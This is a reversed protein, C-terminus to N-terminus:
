RAVVVAASRVMAGAGVVVRYVGVPLSAVSWTIRHAGPEVDRDAITAVLTGRTDYASARLHAATRLTVDISAVERAPNPTVAISESAADASVEVAAVEGTSYVGDNTGIVPTGDPLVAVSTVTASPPLGDSMATWTVGEDTSRLAHHRASAYITGEHAAFDSLTDSAMQVM